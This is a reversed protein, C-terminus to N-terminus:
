CVILLKIYIIKLNILEKLFRNLFNNIYFLLILKILKIFINLLKIYNIYIFLIKNM